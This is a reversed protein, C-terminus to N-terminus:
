KNSITALYNRTNQRQFEIQGKEEKKLYVKRLFTYAFANFVGGLNLFLGICVMLWFPSTNTQTWLAQTAWPWWQLLFVLIFVSVIRASKIRQKRRGSDSNCALGRSSLTVKVSIIVYNVACVFFVIMLTYGNLRSVIRGNFM